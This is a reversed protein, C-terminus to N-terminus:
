NLYTYSKILKSSNREEDKEEHSSFDKEKLADTHTMLMHFARAFNDNARCSYKCFICKFVDRGEIFFRKLRHDDPLLDNHSTIFHDRYKNKYNMQQGCFCKVDTENIKCFYDSKTKIKEPSGPPISELVEKSNQVADNVTVELFIEYRKIM